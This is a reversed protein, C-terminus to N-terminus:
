ELVFVFSIQDLYLSCCELHEKYIHWHASRPRCLHIKGRVHLCLTFAMKKKEKSREKPEERSRFEKNLILRWALNHIALLRHEKIDTTSCM